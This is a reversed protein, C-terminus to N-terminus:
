NSFLAPQYLFSGILGLPRSALKRTPTVPCLLTQMQAV